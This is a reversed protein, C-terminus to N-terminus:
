SVSSPNSNHFPPFSHSLIPSSTLSFASFDLLHLSTLILLTPHLLGFSQSSLSLSLTSCYQTISVPGYNKALDNKEGERVTVINDSRSVPNWTTLLHFHCSLSLCSLSTPTTVTTQFGVESKKKKKFLILNLLSIEFKDGFVAEDLLSRVIIILTTFFMRQNIPWNTTLPSWVTM